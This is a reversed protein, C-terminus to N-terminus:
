KKFLALFQALLSPNFDVEGMADLEKQAAAREKAIVPEMSKGIKMVMEAEGHDLWIGKCHGCRDIEVRDADQALTVLSMHADCRPCHIPADEISGTVEPRDWYSPDAHIGLAAYMEGHDFFRGRCEPCEDLFAGEVMRETLRTHDRPCDLDRRTTDVKGVAGKSM